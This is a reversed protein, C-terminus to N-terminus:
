MRRKFEGIICTSPEIRKMWERLNQSPELLQKLVLIRSIVKHQQGKRIGIKFSMTTLKNKWPDTGSIDARPSCWNRIKLNKKATNWTTYLTMVINSRLIFTSPHMNALNGYHNQWKIEKFNLKGNASALPMTLILDAFFFFHERFLSYCSAQILKISKWELARSLRM